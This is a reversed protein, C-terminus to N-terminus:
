RALKIKGTRRTGIIEVGNSRCDRVIVYRSLIGTPTKQSGWYSFSFNLTRFQNFHRLRQEISLYSNSPVRARYSADTHEGIAETKGGDKTAMAEQEALLRAACDQLLGKAESENLLHFPKSTPKPPANEDGCATILLTAIFPLLILQRM